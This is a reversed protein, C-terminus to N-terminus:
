VHYYNDHLVNVIYIVSSVMFITSFVALNIYVIPLPKTPNIRVLDMLPFFGCKANNEVRTETENENSIFLFSILGKSVWNDRTIEYTQRTRM